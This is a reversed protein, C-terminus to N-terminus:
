PFRRAALQGPMRRKAAAEGAVMAPDRVGVSVVGGVAIPPRTDLRHMVVAGFAAQGHYVGTRASVSAKAPASPMRLTPM